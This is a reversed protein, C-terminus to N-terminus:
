KRCADLLCLKIRGEIGWNCKAAIRQHINLKIYDSDHLRMEYYHLSYLTNRGTTDKTRTEM